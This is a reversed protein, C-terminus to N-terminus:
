PLAGAARLRNRLIEAGSALAPMPDELSLTYFRQPRAISRLWERLTMENRERRELFAFVDRRPNLITMGTVFGPPASVPAGVLRGYVYGAIDVGAARVLENVGTLRANVEILKLTGDRDDHMFEVNAIGCLGAARFLRLALGPLEPIWDTVHYTGEGEGAPYRRIIRKTFHFAPEGDHDLHTYYSCLSSDPGPIREVLMVQVDARAIPALAELLGAEDEVVVHKRGFAQQFLHSLRPKVMLPYVLEDRIRELDRPSDLRWYRPTPVGARRAIEYTTLKDLMALQADINMEDLRYRAGLEERNYAIAEIGDDSGPILVAGRLFEAEPGTLARALRRHLVEDGDPLPLTTCYRSASLRVESPGVFYVPVGVRGMSRAVSLVNSTGGVMVLPIRPVGHGVRDTSPAAAAVRRHM